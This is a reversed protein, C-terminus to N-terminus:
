AHNCKIHGLFIEQNNKGAVMMPKLRSRSIWDFLLMWQKRAASLYKFDWLMSAAEKIRWARATELNMRTLTMFEKRKTERNDTKHSNKLWQYKTKGHPSKGALERHEAARIRNLAKAFHTSVHFRDFGILERAFATKMNDYLIESPVGGFYSFTTTEAAKAAAYERLITISGGYKQKRLNRLLVERNFTLDEELISLIM